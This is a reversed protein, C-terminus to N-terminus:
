GIARNLSTLVVRSIILHSCEIKASGKARAPATSAAEPHGEQDFSRHITTQMTVARDAAMAKLRQASASRSAAFGRVADRANGAPKSERENTPPKVTTIAAAKM